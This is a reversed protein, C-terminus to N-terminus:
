RTPRVRVPLDRGAARFAAAVDSRAKLARMAARYRANLTGRDPSLMFPQLDWLLSLARAPDELAAIVARAAEDMRGLCILAQRRQTANGNDMADFLTQAAEGAAELRGLRALACSRAQALRAVGMPSLADGAGIAAALREAAAVAELAEAPRDLEGALMARRVAVELLQPRGDLKSGALAALRALAADAQGLFALMDAEFIVLGFHEPALGDLAGGELGAGAAVALAEEERNAANLAVAHAFRADLDDPAAEFVARTRAVDQELLPQGRPGLKAEVEPWLTRLRGDIGMLMLTQASRIEALLARAEELRDRAVLGQIVGGRLGDRDGEEPTGRLWGAALLAFDVEFLLDPQGRLGERLQWVQAAPRSALADAGGRTALLTLLTQAADASRENFQQLSFQVLLVAAAPAPDTAVAAEIAELADAGRDMRALVFARLLQPRSREGPLEAAALARDALALAADLDGAEYRAQAEALLAPGAVPQARVPTMVLLGMLVLFLSKM